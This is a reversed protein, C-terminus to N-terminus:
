PLMAPARRPFLAPAIKRGVRGFAHRHGSVVRVVPRRGHRHSPSCVHVLGFADDHQTEGLIRRMVGDLRERGIKAQRPDQEPSAEHPRGFELLAHSEPIGGTKEELMAQHTEPMDVELGHQLRHGLTPCDLRDSIRDPAAGHRHAGSERRKWSM